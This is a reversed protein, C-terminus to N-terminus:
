KVIWGNDTESHDANHFVPIENGSYVVKKIKRALDAAVDTPESHLTHVVTIADKLSPINKYTYTAAFNKEKKFNVLHVTLRQYNRGKM